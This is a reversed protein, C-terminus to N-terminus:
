KKERRQMEQDIIKKLAEGAELRVYKDEDQLSELLANVASKARMGYNGLVWCTHRRIYKNPDNLLRILNPICELPSGLRDLALVSELRVMWEPDELAKILTSISDPSKLNGLAVVAQMRIKPSSDHLSLHLLKSLVEPTVIGIQGLAWSTRNRVEESADDLLLLLASVASESDRGLKGLAWAGYIRVRPDPDQIAELFASIDEKRVNELLTESASHEMSFSNINGNRFNQFSAEEFLFRWIIVCLLIMLGIISWHMPYIRSKKQISNKQFLRSNINLAEALIPLHDSHCSIIPTKAEDRQLLVDFINKSLPFIQLEPIAMKQLLLADEEHLVLALAKYHRAATWKHLLSKQADADNEQTVKDLLLESLGQNLQNPAFACSILVPREQATKSVSNPHYQAIALVCAVADSYGVNCLQDPKNYRQNPPTPIPEFEFRCQDQIEQPARVFAFQAGSSPRLESKGGERCWHYKARIARVLVIFSYDLSGSDVPFGLRFGM